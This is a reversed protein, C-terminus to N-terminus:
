VVGERPVPLSQNVLVAPLEDEVQRIPPYLYSGLSAALKLVGMILFLLGIGRGPGVGVIRGISGTLAGTPALLPEFLKDALPGAILYAMPRTSTAIMRQVALVRGQVDPPV